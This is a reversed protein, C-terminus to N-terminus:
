GETEDLLRMKGDYYLEMINKKLAPELSNTRRLVKKKDERLQERTKFFPCGEGQCKKVNLANCKGKNYAFCREEMMM